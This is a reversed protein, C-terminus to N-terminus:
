ISGFRRSKPSRIVREIRNTFLDFSHFIVVIIFTHNGHTSSAFIRSNAIFNCYQFIRSFRTWRWATLTTSISPLFWKWDINWSLIQFYQLILTSKLCQLNRLRSRSPFLLRTITNVFAFLPDVRFRADPDFLLLLM